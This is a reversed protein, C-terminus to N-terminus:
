TQLFILNTHAYCCLKFIYRTIDAQKEEKLEQQLKKIAKERKTKEMREQWPTKLSDAMQTRRYLSITFQTVHRQFAIWHLVYRTAAKELKWGKGSVRGHASNNLEIIPKAEEITTSSAAAAASEVETTSM